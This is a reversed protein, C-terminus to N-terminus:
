KDETLRGDGSIPIVEGLFHPEPKFVAGELFAKVCAPVERVASFRKSRATYQHADAVLGAADLGLQKALFIARPLHFEQTVVILSKVKFIDRARYMSNYTDFGAHDMFIDEPPIGQKIMYNRITNVEDYQKTGHDGSVLIKEVKGSKYLAIGQDARDQMMLSLNGNSFVRAGLVLAVQKHSLMESSQYIHPKATKHIHNYILLSAILGVSVIVVSYKLWKRLANKTIKM